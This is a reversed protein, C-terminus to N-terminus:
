HDDFIVLLWKFIVSFALTTPHVTEAIEIMQGVLDEDAYTWYWAPNGWVIAVVETLHEWLHLKPSMKWLRLSATHASSALISYFEALKQGLVPLEARTEACLFQSESQLIEYFRCLLRCIAQMLQDDRDDTGHTVVLYLAYLAMHRTAAAKARLKPWDGSARIRELTLKGQIRTTCRTRKYWSKLDNALNNARDAYTRGGCCARIIGFIFLVNGIVHSALGLDIAHLVDIMINELRLGRCHALLTPTPLGNRRLHAMYTDHTYLTDRWAADARCNTFLLEPITSSAQCMWCMREAENWQPFHFCEKYFAWDGRVQALVARWPGALPGRPGRHLPEDFPGVQPHVGDSLANLSWSLIRLCHDLTDASMESKRIVTFLFRKRMTAGRGMLSNWSIVYLSDVKSFAGADAHVGLPVTRHWTAPAMDPHQTVFETHRIHEWFDSCAGDAGCIVNRFDDARGAFYSSFFRHPLLFPHSAHRSARTPIAFWEMPPSGTPYGLVTQMARFMNQTHKGSAGMRAMEDMGEAGQRMASHAFQQVHRTTIGGKAWERRLDDWLPREPPLETATSASASGSSARAIRTRVGGRPAGSGADGVDARTDSERQEDAAALRRKIGVSCVSSFLYVFCCLAVRAM